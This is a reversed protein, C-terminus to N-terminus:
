KKSFYNGLTNKQPSVEITKAKKKVPTNGENKEPKEGVKLLVMLEEFAATPVIGGSAEKHGRAFTEGMREKLGDTSLDAAAKLSDIINVPPDRSRASNSLLLEGHGRPLRLEGGHCDGVEQFQPVGGV